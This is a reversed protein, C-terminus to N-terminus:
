ADPKQELSAAWADFGDHRILREPHVDVDQFAALTASNPVKLELPFSHTVKIRHLLLNIADSISLGIEQLVAEAEAKIEPSVRARVTATRSMAFSKQLNYSCIYWLPLPKAILTAVLSMIPM